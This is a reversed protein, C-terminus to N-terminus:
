RTTPNPYIEWAASFCVLTTTRGREKRNHSIGVCKCYNSCDGFLVDLRSCMRDHEPLPVKRIALHFTARRSCDCRQFHCMETRHHWRDKLYCLFLTGRDRQRLLLRDPGEDRHLGKLPCCFCNRNPRLSLSGLCSPFGEFLYRSDTLQLCESLKV